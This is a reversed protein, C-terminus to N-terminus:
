STSIVGGLWYLNMGVVVARCLTGQAALIGVMEVRM